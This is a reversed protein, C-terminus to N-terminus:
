PKSKPQRIARRSTGAEFKHPIFEVSDGKCYVNNWNSFTAIYENNEPGPGKEKTFSLEGTLGIKYKDAEVEFNGDKCEVVYIM